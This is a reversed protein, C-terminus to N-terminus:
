RSCASAVLWRSHPDQSTFITKALCFTFVIRANNM